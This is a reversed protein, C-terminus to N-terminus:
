DSYRFRHYIAGVANNGVMYLDNSVPDVEIGRWYHSTLVLSSKMNFGGSSLVIEVMRLEGASNACAYISGMSGIAPNCVSDWVTVGNFMGSSSWQVDIGPGAAWYVYGAGGTGGAVFFKPGNWSNPCYTVTKMPYSYLDGGGALTAKTWVDGAPQYFYIVGVSGLAEGVFCALKGDDSWAVDYFFTNVPAGPIATFWDNNTDAAEADNPIFVLATAAMM